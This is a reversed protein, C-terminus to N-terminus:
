NLTVVLGLLVNVNTYFFLASSLSLQIVAGAILCNEFNMKSLGEALSKKQWILKTLIEKLESLKEKMLDAIRQLRYVLLSGIFENGIYAVRDLVADTGKSKFGITGDDKLWLSFMDVIITQM